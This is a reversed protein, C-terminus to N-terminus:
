QILVKRTVTGGEFNCRVTYLGKAMDSLDINYIDNNNTQYQKVMQGMMNFVEINRLHNANQVNVSIAGTSPNPSLIVEDSNEVDAIAVPYAFLEPHVTLGHSPGGPALQAQMRTVQGKTFMVTCEDGTYDMYNMYMEGGATGQCNGVVTPWHCSQNGDEQRPTDQVDDDDNCNGNNVQSNGWIHWLNFFHGLEHVLTRGGDVHSPKFFEVVSKRKGLAGYSIVV